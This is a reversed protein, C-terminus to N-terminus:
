PPPTPLPTVAGTPNQILGSVWLNGDILTYGATGVNINVREATINVEHYGTTANLGMEVTTSGDKSQLVVYDKKADSYNYSKMSDPIFVSDSFNKVRDSNPPSQAMSQLFLSIDRDNALVWGLDGPNLPFSLSFNGGGLLLVPISAIQARPIQIDDTTIMTIMFQVQVRNEERDYRIVKAPLMSDDSMSAKRLVHQLVGALTDSDAPNLSPNSQSM